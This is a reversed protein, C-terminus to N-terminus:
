KRRAAEIEERTVFGRAIMTEQLEKIADAWALASERLENTLEEMSKEM